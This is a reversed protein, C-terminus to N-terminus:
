DVGQSLERLPAAVVRRPPAACCTRSWRCPRTSVPYPRFASGLEAVVDDVASTSRGAVYAEMEVAHHAQDVPRRSCSRRSSAAKRRKPIKLEIDVAAHGAGPAPVM